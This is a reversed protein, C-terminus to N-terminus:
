WRDDRRLGVTEVPPVVVEVVAVVVTPTGAPAVSREQEESPTRQARRAPPEALPSRHTATAVAVAREAQSSRITGNKTVISAAGGGGGGGSCGGSGANGGTGGNYNGGSYSDAGGAGGGTNTVCGAGNAGSDGPYFGITDGSTVSITAKVYGWVGGSGGDQGDFGGQGGAGGYVDVTISSVGSPV